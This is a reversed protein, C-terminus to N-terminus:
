PDHFCEMMTKHLTAVADAGGANDTLFSYAIGDIRVDAASIGNKEIASAILSSEESADPLVFLTIRTMSGEEAKSIGLFPIDSITESGIITHSASREKATNMVCLPVQGQKAHTVARPHLVKAGASAMALVDDYSLQELLRTGEVSNPDASFVGDVDTYIEVAESSLYRGLAAATTDSGGRGLTLIEGSENMGQFGAVVPVKGQSLLEELRSTDIRIIEANGFNDDTIIGAQFGTIPYADIGKAKLDESVVVTSIVEGCSILLDSSRKDAKEKEIISFLSDTAYPSPYRGMASVVIVPLIGQALVDRAKKAIMARKEATNVSTGGYKQVISKM